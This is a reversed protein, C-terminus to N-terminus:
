DIVDNAVNHVAVRFIKHNKELHLALYRVSVDTCATGYACFWLNHCINCINEDKYWFFFTCAHYKKVVEMNKQKQAATMVTVYM